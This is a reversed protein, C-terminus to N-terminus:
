ERCLKRIDEKYEGASVGRYQSQPVGELSRAVAELVQQPKPYTTAAHNLYIM